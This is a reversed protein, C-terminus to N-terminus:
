NMLGGVHTKCKMKLIFDWLCCVFWLVRESFHVTRGVGKELKGAQDTEGARCIEPIWENGWAVHMRRGPSGDDLVVPQPSLCWPENGTQEPPQIDARLVDAPSTGGLAERKPTYVDDEGQTKM